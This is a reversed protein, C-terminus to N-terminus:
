GGDFELWPAREIITANRCSVPRVLMSPPLTAAHLGLMVM